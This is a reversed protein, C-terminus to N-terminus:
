IIDTRSCWSELESEFSVGRVGNIELESWRLELGSALVFLRRMKEKGM